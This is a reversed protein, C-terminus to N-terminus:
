SMSSLPRCAGLTGYAREGAKEILDIGCAQSEGWDVNLAQHNQGQHNQGECIPGRDPHNWFRGHM